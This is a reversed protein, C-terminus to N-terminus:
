ASQMEAKARAGEYLARFDATAIGTDALLQKWTDTARKEMICEYALRFPAITKGDRTLTTPQNPLSDVRWGREHLHLTIAAGLLSRAESNRQGVGYLAWSRTMRRVFRRPTRFDRPRLARLRKGHKAIETTAVVLEVLEGADEWTIPKLAKTSFHAVLQDEFRDLPGLLDVCHGGARVDISDPAINVAALRQSLPPHSDDSKARRIALEEKLREHALDDRSAETRITEFGDVIPPRYGARIARKASSRWFMEYSGDNLAFTMLGHAIASPSEITAALRDAAFEQMRSLRGTVAEFLMHFLAFPGSVFGGLPQTKRIVNLLAREVHYFRVADRTDGGHYHGFEHAVIARLSSAPLQFFLPIGIAMIRESRAAEPLKAEMVWANSEMMLFVAAPMPQGAARAVNEIMAFLEPYESDHIRPGPAKFKENRPWIAWPIVFVALAFGIHRPKWPSGDPATWQQLYERALVVTLSVAGVYFVVAFATALAARLRQVTAPRM